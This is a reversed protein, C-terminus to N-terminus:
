QLLDIRVVAQPEVKQTGVSLTTHLVSAGLKGVVGLTRQNNSLLPALGSAVICVTPPERMM